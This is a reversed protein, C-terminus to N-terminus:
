KKSVLFNKERLKKFEVDLLDDPTVVELFGEATELDLNTHHALLEAPSSFALDSNAPLSYIAKPMLKARGTNARYIAAGACQTLDEWKEIATSQEYEGDSHCSLVFPGHGQGIYVTPDSGGLHGSPCSRAFPCAKCPKHM